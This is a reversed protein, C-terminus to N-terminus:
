DPLPSVIALEQEMRALVEGRRPFVMRETLSSVTVAAVVKRSASYVPLAVSTVHRVTREDNLAYGDRRTREVLSLIEDVNTNFPAYAAANAHVLEEVEFDQSFALLALSGSGVGLPRRDGLDLTMARVPYSGQERGICVGTFGSRIMLFITDQTIEALRRVLPRLMREISLSRVSKLNLGHIEPGMRYRRNEKVQEVLGESALAILLRNTTAPHLGVEKAIEVVRRGDTGGEAVHRLILIASDAQEPGGTL